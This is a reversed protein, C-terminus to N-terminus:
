YDEISDFQKLTMEVVKVKAMGQCDEQIIHHLDIPHIGQNCALYMDCELNKSSIKYVKIKHTEKM